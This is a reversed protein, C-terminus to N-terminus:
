GQPCRAIMAGDIVGPDGQRSGDPGFKSTVVLTPGHREFLAEHVSPENLDLWRGGFFSRKAILGVTDAGRKSAVTVTQTRSTADGTDSVVDKATVTVAEGDVTAAADLEFRRQATPQAPAADPGACSTVTLQV